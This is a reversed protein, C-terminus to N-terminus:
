SLRPRVGPGFVFDQSLRECVEEGILTLALPLLGVLAGTLDFSGEGVWWMANGILGVLVGAVPWLTVAFQARRYLVVLATLLIVGLGAVAMIAALEGAMLMQGDFYQPIAQGQLWDQFRIADSPHLVMQMVFPTLLWVGAIVWAVRGGCQKAERLLICYRGIKRLM